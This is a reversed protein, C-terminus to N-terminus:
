LKLIRPTLLHPGFWVGLGGGGGTGSSWFIGPRFLTLFLILYFVTTENRWPMILIENGLHKEKSHVRPDIQM